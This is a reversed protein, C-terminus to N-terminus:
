ELIELNAFPVLVSGMEGLDVEAAHARVGGPLLRRQDFIAAVFGVQGRYPARLLRVRKGLALAQGELPLSAVGSDPLPILVEPRHGISRETPRADAAVERGSNTGLLEFALPNMGPLRSGASGGRRAHFGDILILPIPFAAAQDRLDAALTGLVLGGLGHEAALRLVAPDGCTGAALVAGPSGLKLKEATLEDEPQDTAVQLIGFSELGNGWKAQILAGATEITASQGPEVNVVAGPIGALLEFPQSESQLLLQGERMMVIRGNVPALFRKRMLGVPGALTEGAAVEDGLRRVLYQDASEPPLGLARAFALLRHDRAVAARGLVDGASVRQDLHVLIEGPVPLRRERRIIVLPAIHTQPPVFTM